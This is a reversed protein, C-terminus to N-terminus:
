PYVRAIYEASCAPKDNGAIEVTIRCIVQVAKGVGEASQLLSRTRIRSGAIVPAPFRVKNLGYNVRM